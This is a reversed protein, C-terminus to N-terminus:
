GGMNRHTGEVNYHNTQCQCVSCLLEWVRTATHEWDMQSTFMRAKASLTARLQQNRALTLIAESLANEDNAPVLMGAQSESIIQQLFGVQTGIVPLGHAMAEITALSFNEYKSTLAFFDAATYYVSVKEPAVGGVWFVYDEIQLRKAIDRLRSKEPGDGVMLWVLPLHHEHIVRAIGKLLLAHNKVEVLRAVTIGVLVERDGILRRRHESRLSLEKPIRKQDIGPNIVHFDRQMQWGLRSHLYDVPDGHTFLGFRESGVYRALKRTHYSSPIGPLWTVVSLSTREMVWEPLWVMSCGYIADYNAAGTKRLKSEFVAREFLYVNLYRLLAALRQSKYRITNEIPHLQPVPITQIPFSADGSLQQISIRNGSTIFEVTNDMDKLHSAVKIDFVEGGGVVRGAMRNVVMISLRTRM